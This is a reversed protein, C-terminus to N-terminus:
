RGLIRSATVGNELPLGRVFALINGVTTEAINELATATFYAQHSTVIVNPFMVLRQLIDDQIIEESLNEFFLDAEQEYVDLGLYGVKGSKLGEIVAAADVLAGRSTNIIMVGDKMRAMTEERVLHHTGPTLPCHLSIIDSGAFLEELSVYTGGLAEFQPNRLPDHGLVTVGFGSILKAFVEGIKGTGVIGVTCGHIDFGCLGDISFNGTRVRNYARNIKRNLALILALAFEAVAHPSYAPVRAVLIGHADAFRLDVNNFGACRLAVLRVGTRGLIDLVHAGLDDNVFACVCDFGAAFEATRVNLREEFFEFELAKGAKINAAVLFEEDYPKTSFVAVKM